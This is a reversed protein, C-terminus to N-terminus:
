STIKNGAIFGISSLGLSSFVSVVVEVVVVVVYPVWVFSRKCCSVNDEGCNVCNMTFGFKQQKADKNTEFLFFCFQVIQM